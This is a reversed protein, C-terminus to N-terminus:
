RDIEYGPPCLEKVANHIHEAVDAIFYPLKDENVKMFELLEKRTTKKLLKLANLVELEREPKM